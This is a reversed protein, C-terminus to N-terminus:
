GQLMGPLIEVHSRRKRTGAGLICIHEYEGYNERFYEPANFAEIRRRYAQQFADWTMTKSRYAKFAEEDPAFMTDHIYEAGVIANTFYALDKSKTFGCLQNTNHLRVDLLLDTHHSKLTEFFEEASTEFASLTFIEM